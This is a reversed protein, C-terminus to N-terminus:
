ARPFSGYPPPPHLPTPPDVNHLNKLRGNIPNVPKWLLCYICVYLNQKGTFCKRISEISTTLPILYRVQGLLCSYLEKAFILHVMPPKRRRKSKDLCLIMAQHHDRKKQGFKIKKKTSKVVKRLSFSCLPTFFFGLVSFSDQCM